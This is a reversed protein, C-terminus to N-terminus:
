GDTRRRSLSSINMLSRSVFVKAWDTGCGGFDMVVPVCCSTRAIRNRNALKRTSISMSMAPLPAPEIADVVTSSSATCSEAVLTPLALGM